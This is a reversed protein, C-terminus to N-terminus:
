RLRPAPRSTSRSTPALHRSGFSCAAVATTASLPRTRTMWSLSSTSCPSNSTASCRWKGKCLGSDEETTCSAVRSPAKFIPSTVGGISSNVTRSLASLFYMLTTSQM